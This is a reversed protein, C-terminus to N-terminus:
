WWASCFERLGYEFEVASPHCHPYVWHTRFKIIKDTAPLREAWRPQWVVLTSPVLVDVFIFRHLEKGCVHNILVDNVSM